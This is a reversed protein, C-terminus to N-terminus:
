NPYYQLPKTGNYIQALTNVQAMRGVGHSVWMPVHRSCVNGHASVKDGEDEEDTEKARKKDLSQTRHLEAKGEKM